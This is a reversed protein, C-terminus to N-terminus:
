KKYQLSFIARPFKRNLKIDSLTSWPFSFFNHLTKPCAADISHLPVQEQFQSSFLIPPGDPECISFFCVAKQKAAQLHSVPSM